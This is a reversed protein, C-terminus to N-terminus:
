GKAFVVYSHRMAPTGSAAGIQLDLADLAKRMDDVSQYDISRDQFRTSRVGSSIRAWLKDRAAQLQTLTQAM